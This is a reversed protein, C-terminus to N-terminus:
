ATTFRAVKPVHPKAQNPTTLNPKPHTPPAFSHCCVASELVWFSHSPYSIPPPSALAAPVILLSRRERTLHPPPVRDPVVLLLPAGPLRRRRRRIPWPTRPWPAVAVRCPAVPRRRHVNSTPRQVHKNAAGVRSCEAGGHGRHPRQAPPAQPRPRGRARPPGQTCRSPQVRSHAQSAATPTKADNPHTLRASPPGRCPVLCQWTRRAASQRTRRGRLRGVGGVCAGSAEGASRWGSRWCEALV